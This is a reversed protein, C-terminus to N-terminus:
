ETLEGLVNEWRKAERECEDAAERLMAAKDARITVLMLVASTAVDLDFQEIEALGYGVRKFGELKGALDRKEPALRFPDGEGELVQAYDKLADVLRYLTGVEIVKINM